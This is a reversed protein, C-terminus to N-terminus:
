DTKLEEVKVAVKMLDKPHTDNDGFNLSQGIYYEKAEELTANMSTILHDGDNFTIKYANM